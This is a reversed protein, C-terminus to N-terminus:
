RDLGPNKDKQMSRLIGKVEGKTVEGMIIENNADDMYRPFNQAMRVVEAISVKTPAKFLKKFQNRVLLSLEEFSKATNGEESKIMWITNINKRVKQMTISFNQIKM